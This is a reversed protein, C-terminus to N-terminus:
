RAPTLTSILTKWEPVDFFLASGGALGVQVVPTSFFRRLAAPSRLSGPPITGRICSGAAARSVAQLMVIESRPFSIETKQYSSKGAVIRTLWNDREFDEFWVQEGATYLLGSLGLPRDGSRGLLTAFTRYGITGGRTEETRKWFDEPDERQATRLWQM